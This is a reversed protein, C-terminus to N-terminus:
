KPALERHSNGSIFGILFGLIVAVTYLLSKPRANLFHQTKSSAQTQSFCAARALMSNHLNQISPYENRIFRQAAGVSFARNIINRANFRNVKLRHFVKAESNWIIKGNTVSIAKLSFDIDEGMMYKQNKGLGLEEAFRLGSDFVTRRFAMNGGWAYPVEQGHTFPVWTTCSVVWGLRRPLVVAKPPWIPLVPGTVGIVKAERFSEAIKEAWFASPVIDDDLFAIISGKAMSLAFNRQSSLGPNGPNFIVKADIRAMKLKERVVNFLEESKGIVIILEVNVRGSTKLSRALDILDECREFSVVAVIVSITADRYM